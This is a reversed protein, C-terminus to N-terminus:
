WALIRMPMALMPLFLQTCVKERREVLSGLKWNATRAMAIPVPVTQSGNGM